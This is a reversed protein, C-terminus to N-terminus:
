VKNFLEVSWDKGHDFRLDARSQQGHCIMCLEYSDKDVTPLICNRIKEMVNKPTTAM